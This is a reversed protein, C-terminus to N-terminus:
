RRSWWRNFATMAVDRVRFPRLRVTLWALVFWRVPAIGLAPSVLEIMARDVHDVGGMVRLLGRRPPRANLALRASGFRWRRVMLPAYWNPLHEDAEILAPLDALARLARPTDLALSRSLGSEFVNWVAVDRPLYCFGAALAVKRALLGDAFSHARPDFGGKALALDRRFIASGTLIFNDARRLLRAADTATVVGGNQLPRVAPRHGLTRGTEGDILLADGCFLGAEPHEALMSLATAFFGPLVADDAAGFYVYQGRAAELGRQLSILAGRNCENVIVTLDSTDRALEKLVTLSDDVSGDDVVIIEDAPREQARLALIARPLYRAHNYNPIIVSLM